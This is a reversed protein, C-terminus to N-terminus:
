SNIKIRDDIDVLTTFLYGFTGIHKEKTFREKLQSIYTLECVTNANRKSYVRRNEKVMHKLYSYHYSAHNDYGIDYNMEEPDHTKVNYFFHFNLMDENSTNRRFFRKNGLFWTEICRNQIILVIECNENLVTGERKLAECVERFEISREEISMEDADLCVFLYNFHPYQNIDEITNKLIHSYIQPYGNGTLIYYSNEIDNVDQVNQIRILRDEFISKVLEPYFKIETSAGEVLFYLNM